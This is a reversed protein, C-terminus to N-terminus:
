GKMGSILVGRIFQRQLLVFMILIPITALTAAAMLYHYSTGHVTQYETLGLAITRMEVKTVVILPWLLNNWSDLFTFIGLATLPPKCLPLIVHWFIGPESAGDIRAADLLEDPISLIFQRMLFVGFGSIAAPIILGAYENLWGFNRVIIFLPIMIVQFPIMLTSLVAVFLAKSGWFRYKAFGFGALASFFLSLVTIAFGVFISNFFYRGLPALEISETYNEFRVPNPILQVPVSFIKDPMKLSSSVMWLIPFIMLLGCFVLLAYGSLKLSGKGLKNLM